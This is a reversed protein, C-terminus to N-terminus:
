VPRKYHGSYATHGLTHLKSTQYQKLQCQKSKTWESPNVGTQTRHERLKITFLM